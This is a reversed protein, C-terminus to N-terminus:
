ITLENEEKIKIASEFINKVVRVVVGVFLEAISVCFGFISYYLDLITLGKIEVVGITDLCLTIFVGAAFLTTVTCVFFCLWSFMRLYKVNKNDFVFGKKIRILLRDLCSLAIYGVPVAIYFPAV